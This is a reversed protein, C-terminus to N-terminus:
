VMCLGGGGGGGGGKNQLLTIVLKSAQEEVSDVMRTIIVQHLSITDIILVLPDTYGRCDQRQDLHDNSFQDSFVDVM